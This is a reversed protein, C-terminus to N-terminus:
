GRLVWWSILCVLAFAFGLALYILHVSTEYSM